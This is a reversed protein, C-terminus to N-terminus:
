TTKAATPAVAAVMAAAVAAVAAAHAAAGPCRARPSAWARRQGSRMAAAPLLQQPARLRPRSHCGGGLQHPLHTGIKSSENCSKPLDREHQPAARGPAAASHAALTWARAASATPHHTCAGHSTRGLISAGACAAANRCESTSDLARARPAIGKCARAVARRGDAHRRM